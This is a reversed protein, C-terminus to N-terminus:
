ARGRAVVKQYAATVVAADPAGGEHTWAIRGRHLIALRTAVPVARELDHTTLVVACGAARLEALREQLALVAQPDLGSFPEDLLLLDPAHLLARALGLRQGMGRSYTRVPRRAVAELGAWALLEAVRAAPAAVAFLRAYFALNEVGSLDPYCLSEHGLYGIRRRLAPPAAPAPVGFVSLHGGGPRLLLALVRLLTTKGAGNPGLLALTEGSEVTLDVGALVPVGAFARVVGAARIAPEGV